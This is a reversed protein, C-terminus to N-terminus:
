ALNSESSPSPPPTTAPLSLRGSTRAERDSAQSARRVSHAARKMCPRDRAARQRQRIADRVLSRGTRRYAEVIADDTRSMRLAAKTWAREFHRIANRLSVARGRMLSDDFVAISDRACASMVELATQPRGTNGVRVGTAIAPDPSTGHSQLSAKQQEMVEGIVM